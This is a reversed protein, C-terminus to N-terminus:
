GLSNVVHQLVQSRFEPAENALQHRGQPVLRVSCGPFKHRIVRLNHRWDVTGDEDGQVVTLPFDRPPRAELDRIWRKLAGVWRVSLHRPQLPDVARLFHLFEDDHSNVAFKRAINRRFPHILAHVLGNIRWNVPRVLPALLVARAFPARGHDRPVGLLYDMFVAGGTSQAVVQWPQPLAAHRMGDVIAQLVAQYERFDGIAAPEGSSLGHGPLDFTLVDFGAALVAAIVHDFIGVHDYYGHLVLVTGRAEPQRWSQVVIRYGGADIDGMAHRVPRDGGVRDLGYFRAYAAPAGGAAAAEMAASQQWNWAPLAAIVAARDFGTDTHM